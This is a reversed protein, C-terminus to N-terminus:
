VLLDSDFKQSLLIMQTYEWTETLFHQHGWVKHSNSANIKQIESEYALSMVSNEAKAWLGAELM